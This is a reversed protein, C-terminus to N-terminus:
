SGGGDLQAKLRAIQEHAAALEDEATRRRQADKVLQDRWAQVGKLFTEVISVQEDITMQDDIQFTAYGDQAAGPTVYLAPNPTGSGRVSLDKELFFTANFFSM